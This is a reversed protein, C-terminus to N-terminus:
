ALQEMLEFPKNTVVSIDNRLMEKCETIHKGMFVMTKINHDKYLSRGLGIIKKHRDPDYNTVLYRCDFKKLIPAPDDVISEEINVMLGTDIIKTTGSLSMEALVGLNETMIMAAIRKSSLIKAVTRAIAFNGPNGEEYGPRFALCTGTNIIGLTTIANALEYQITGNYKICPVGNRGLIVESFASIGKQKCLELTRSLGPWDM